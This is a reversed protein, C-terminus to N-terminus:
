FTWTDISFYVDEASSELPTLISRSCAAIGRRYCLPIFPLNANFIEIFRNLDITGSLFQAYAASAAASTDIGYSVSGGKKLIPNLSMGPTLRMEGIYMDYKGRKVADAYEKEPLKSVTVSINSNRLEDKILDAAACKFANEKNVILTFEMKRGNNYRTGSSNIKGFGADKLAQSASKPLNETNLSLGKLEGWEPNFPTTTKVAHGQFASSAIQDKNIIMNIAQRILTNTLVTNSKNFAIYVMNNLTVEATTANIRRYSGSSLDDFMFNFEGIELSYQMASSDTVNVLDINGIKASFEGLRSANVKLGLSGNKDVLTYRGSGVPTEDVKAKDAKEPVTGSKVIPFILNSVEYPNLSLLTFVVTSGSGAASKIESLRASYNLSDRAKEFSYVVDDASIESGDSFKLGNVLTVTLTLGDLVANKAIQGVPKYESDVIFLSDYLLSSIQQNLISKAKFPDLTDNQCYPLKLTVKTSGPSAKITTPETTQTNVSGGGCANLTLAAFVFVLLFSLIRLAKKMIKKM